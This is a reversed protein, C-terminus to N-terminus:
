LTSRRRGRVLLWLLYPAGVAATLIGVPLAQPLVTRTLLDAGVVLAAGLLASALLPPRSCGALRVAIQPVVLAVYAIPGAAAVAAATLLVAVLVVVAQSGSLRLGLGRATDDGFQLAALARSTALAVPLLVALSVALPVAQDWTRANLSGTIWVYASAADYIEARTLLWHTLAAAGAWLAIGILVLRYGDIGRRWTLAMLLLGTALAGALAAMPIGLGGLVAGAGTTGGLVIAAVAGVSAGQTIGLIDPSALPNRAFTQFLAGAIGLALGVLVGVVIRPARLQLVIFPQNGEGLGVLTRLVDALGIPYDGRGLSVAGLLVVVVAAVAPVVVQRWRVRGSVPGIRVVTQGPAALGAPAPLERTAASM